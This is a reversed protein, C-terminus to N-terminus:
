GSSGVMGYGGSRANSSSPVTVRTQEAVNQLEALRKQTEALAQQRQQQPVTVGAANGSSGASQAPVRGPVIGLCLCLMLVYVIKKM